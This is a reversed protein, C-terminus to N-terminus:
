IQGGTQNDAKIDNWLKTVDENNISETVFKDIMDKTNEDAKKYSLYLIDLYSVNPTSVNFSKSNISEFYLVSISERKKTFESIDKFSDIEFFKTTFFFPNTTGTPKTIESKDARSGDDYGFRVLADIASSNGQFAWVANMNASDIGLYGNYKYFQLNFRPFRASMTGVEDNNKSLIKVFHMERDGIHSTTTSCLEQTRELGTGSIVGQSEDTYTKTASDFAFINGAGSANMLITHGNIDLYYDYESSVDETTNIDAIMQIVQNTKDTYAKVADSLSAYSEGAVGNTLLTAVPAKWILQNENQYPLYNDYIDNTFKGGSSYTYTGDTQAFVADSETPKSIGVEGKFGSKITVKSANDIQFNGKQGQAYTNDKITTTGGLSVKTGDTGRAVVAGSQVGSHNNIINTNEIDVEAANAWVAACFLQGYNNSITSDAIKAKGGAVVVIGAGDSGEVNLASNKQITSKSINLSNTTYIFGGSYRTNFCNEITTNDFGVSGTGASNVVAGWVNQGAVNQIKNGSFLVSGSGSVKVLPATEWGSQVATPWGGNEDFASYTAGGDVSLGKVYTTGATIDFITGSFGDARKITGTGEIQGDSAFSQTAGVYVTGLNNIYDSGSASYGKGPNIMSTGTGLIVTSNEDGVWLCTANSNGNFTINEFTISGGGTVKVIGQTGGGSTYYSLTRATPVNPNTQTIDYDIGKITVSKNGNLVASPGSANNIKTLDDMVYITGGDAVKNWAQALSPVPYNATGPYAANGTTSVYVKNATTLTINDILNGGGLKINDSSNDAASYSSIGVNVKGNTLISDDISFETRVKYWTGYHDSNVTIRANGPLDGGSCISYGGRFAKVIETDDNFQNYVNSLRKIHAANSSKAADTSQTGIAKFDSLDDTTKFIFPLVSQAYCDKANGNADKGRYTYTNYGPRGAYDFELVLTEGATAEITQYIVMDTSGQLECFKGDASTLGYTAANSGIEITNTKGYATVSSWGTSGNSFDGNVIRNENTVAQTSVGDDGAAYAPVVTLLMAMTLMISLIKKM